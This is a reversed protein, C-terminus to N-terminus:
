LLRVKVSEKTDWSNLVIARHRDVVWLEVRQKRVRSVSGACFRRFPGPFFVAVWDFWTYSTMKSVYQHSSKKAGKTAWRNTPLNKSLTSLRDEDAEESPNSANCGGVLPSYRIWRSYPLLNAAWHDWQMSPNMVEVLDCVDMIIKRCLVSNVGNKTSSDTRNCLPCPNAGMAGLVIWLPEDEEVDDDNKKGGVVAGALSLEVDRFPM